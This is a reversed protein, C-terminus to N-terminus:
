KRLTMPHKGKKLSTQRDLCFVPVFWRCLAHCKRSRPGMCIPPPRVAMPEGRTFGTPKLRKIWGGPFWGTQSGRPVPTHSLFQPPPSHSPHPEFIPTGFPKGQCISFYVLTQTVGATQNRAVGVQSFLNAPICSFRPINSSERYLFGHRFLVRLIHGCGQKGWM